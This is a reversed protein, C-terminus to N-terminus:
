VALPAHRSQQLQVVVVELPAERPQAKRSATPRLDKQMKFGAAYGGRWSQCGQSMRLLETTYRRRSRAAHRRRSVRHVTPRRGHAGRCKALHSKWCCDRGQLGRRLPADTWGTSTNEVGRLLIYAGEGGTEVRRSLAVHAYPSQVCEARSAGV